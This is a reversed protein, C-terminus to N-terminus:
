GSSLTLGWYKVLIKGIKGSFQMFILFNQGPPADGARRSGGSGNNDFNQGLLNEIIRANVSWNFRHFSLLKAVKNLCINGM